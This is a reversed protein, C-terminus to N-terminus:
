EQRAGGLHRIGQPQAIPQQGDTVLAIIWRRCFGFRHDHAGQERNLAHRLALDIPLDCLPQAIPLAQIFEILPRDAFERRIQDQRLIKALNTGCGAVLRCLQKCAQWTLRLDQRHRGLGEFADERCHQFKALRRAGGLASALEDGGGARPKCLYFFLGPARRLAHTHEAHLPQIRRIAAAMPYWLHDIKGSTLIVKCAAARVRHANRPLLHLAVRGLHEDHHGAAIPKRLRGGKRM